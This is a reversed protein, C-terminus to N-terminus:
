YAPRTRLEKRDGFINYVYSLIENRTRLSPPISQIHLVSRNKTADFTIGKVIGSMLLSHDTLTFQVKLPLGVKAKGGVLLACGDESIDVLRARLGATQEVLENANEISSLNYIHASINTECRISKRKQSRILQDSHAIHIIAFKRDAFDDLVKTEFYYGADDVRWFYVNVKQGKWNFGQPLPRGQPYSIALYKRLNEVISALYTGGGPLAIRVKQHQLLDRTTKLGLKYKPTNFEVRKRFDYMKSIFGVAQLDEVKNEARAKIVVGRITRDLQRVSWFLSTPNDLQTAVAAKRLLNIEKLAFGSEKGKAYFQIWPFNLGGNLQFYLLVGTILVISVAIIILAIM